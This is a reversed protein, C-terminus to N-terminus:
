DERAGLPFRRLVAWYNHQEAMLWVETAEAEIPAAQELEPAAEAPENGQIVTVHPVVTEFAGGYPPYDPWQGQLAAALERFPEVPETALYLVGPFRDVGVLTFAFAPYSRLVSELDREVTHTIEDPALFPYLVTVHAPMGFAASPDHRARWKAVAPEASPVPVILASQPKHRRRALRRV